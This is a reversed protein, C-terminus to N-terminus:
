QTIVGSLLWDGIEKRVKLSAQREATLRDYQKRQIALQITRQTAMQDVEDEGNLYIVPRQLYFNASYQRRDGYFYLPISVDGQSKYYSILMKTSNLQDANIVVYILSSLM